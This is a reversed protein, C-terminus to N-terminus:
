KHYLPECNWQETVNLLLELAGILVLQKQPHDYSISYIMEQLREEQGSPSETQQSIANVTMRFQPPTMISRFQRKPQPNPVYTRSNYNNTELLRAPKILLKLRNTRKNWQYTETGHLSTLHSFVRLSVNIFWPCPASAARVAGWNGSFLKRTSTTSM